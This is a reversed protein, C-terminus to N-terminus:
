SASAKAWLISVSGPVLIATAGPPIILCCLMKRTSIILGHAPLTRINKTTVRFYLNTRDKYTLVSGKYTFGNDVLYQMSSPMADKLRGFAVLDVRNNDKAFNNIEDTNIMSTYAEYGMICAAADTKGNEQIADCADDLDGLPSATAAVSWLTVPTITNSASRDFDYETGDDLTIKASCMAEVAMAEMKGGQM